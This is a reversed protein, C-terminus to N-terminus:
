RVPPIYMRKPACSKNVRGSCPRFQGKKDLCIRVEQLQNANGRKCVVSVMEPKLGPNTAIFEDVLVEPTALQTDVPRVYRAPIKIRKFWARSVRFYDSPMLGSCTGHKKYQYIVLGRSPMVDMVSDIVPNPVFPRRRTRCYEPYGREYQPWLGHLVFGYPRARKYGCQTDNRGRSNDQCHTPSWSLVLQFYDFQGAIHTGRRDDRQERQAEAEPASVLAVIFSGVLLLCLAGLTSTRTRMHRVKQESRM